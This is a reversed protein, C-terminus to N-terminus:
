EFAPGCSAAVRQRRRRILLGLAFFALGSGSRLHSGPQVLSCGGDDSPSQSAAAAPVGAEGAASSAQPSAGASSPEAVGAAGFDGTPGQGGSAVDGGSSGSSGASSTPAGGEGVAGGQGTEGGAGASNCLPGSAAAQEGLEFESWSMADKVLLKNGDLSIYSGFAADTTAPPDAKLELAAQWVGAVREEVLVHGAYNTSGPAAWFPGPVVVLSGSVAVKGGIDEDQAADAEVTLQRTWATGCRDYITATQSHAAMGFDFDAGVVATVGNIAVSTGFPARADGDPVDTSPLVQEQSWAGGQLSYIVAKGGGNSLPEGAIVRGGGVAVPGATGSDSGAATWGSGAREFFSLLRSSPSGSAVVLTSDDVAVPTSNVGPVPEFVEVFAADDAQYTVAYRPSSYNAGAYAGVSMTKGGFVVSSTLTYGTPPALTRSVSWGAGSRHYLVPNGADFSLAYSGQIIVQASPDFATAAQTATLAGRAATLPGESSPDGNGCAGAFVLAVGILGINKRM